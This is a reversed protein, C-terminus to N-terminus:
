GSARGDRGIVVPGVALEAAFALAYRVAVEPTLSKGVVGRLGSVTIMPEDSMTLAGLGENGVNATTTVLREGNYHMSPRHSVLMAARNRARCTPRAPPM